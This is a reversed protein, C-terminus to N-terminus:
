PKSVFSFTTKKKLLMQPKTFNTTSQHNQKNKIKKLSGTLLGYNGVSLTKYIESLTRGAIFNILFLELDGHERM